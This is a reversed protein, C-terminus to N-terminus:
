NKPLENEDPKECGEFLNEVIEGGHVDESRPLEPKM